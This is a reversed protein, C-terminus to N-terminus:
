WSLIGPHLVWWNMDCTKAFLVYYKPTWLNGFLIFIKNRSFSSSLSLILDWLHFGPHPCAPKDLKNTILPQNKEQSIFTEISIYKWFSLAFLSQSLFLPFIICFLLNVCNMSKGFAALPIHKTYIQKFTCYKFNILITIHTTILFVAKM